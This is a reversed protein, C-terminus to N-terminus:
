SLVHRDPKSTKTRMQFSVPVDSQRLLIVPPLCIPNHVLYIKNLLTASAQKHVFIHINTKIFYLLHTPIPFLSPPFSLTFFLDFLVFCLGAYFSCKVSHFPPILFVYIRLSLLELVNHMVVSTTIQSVFQQFSIFGVTLCSLFIINSPDDM